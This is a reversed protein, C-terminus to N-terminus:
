NDGVIGNIQLSFVYNTKQILDDPLHEKQLPSFDSPEVSFIISESSSLKNIDSTFIAVGEWSYTPSEINSKCEDPIPIGEITEKPFSNMDFTRISRHFECFAWKGSKSHSPVEVIFPIRSNCVVYYNDAKYRLTKGSLCEFLHLEKKHEGIIEPPFYIGHFYTNDSQALQIVRDDLESHSKLPLESKQSFQFQQLADGDIVRVGGVNEWPQRDDCCSETRKDEEADKATHIVLSFNPKIWPYEAPDLKDPLPPEKIDFPKAEKTSQGKAVIDNNCSVCAFIVVSILLAKHHTM